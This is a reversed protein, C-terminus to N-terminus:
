IQIDSYIAMMSLENNKLDLFLDIDIARIQAATIQQLIDDKSKISKFETICNQMIRYQFLYTRGPRDQGGGSSPWGINIIKKNL